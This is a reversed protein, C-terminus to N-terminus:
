TRRGINRGKINQVKTEIGNNLITKADSWLTNYYSIPSVIVDSKNREFHVRELNNGNGDLLIGYECCQFNGREINWGGLRTGNIGKGCGNFVCETLEWAVAGKTAPYQIDIGIELFQFLCHDFRIKYTDDGNNADTTQVAIGKHQMDVWTKGLHGQVPLDANFVISEFLSYAAFDVNLLPFDGVPTITFDRWRTFHRLHLPSHSLLRTGQPHAGELNSSFPTDQELEYVGQKLFIKDGSLLADALEISNSVTLM